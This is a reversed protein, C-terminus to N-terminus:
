RAIWRRRPSCDRSCLKQCTATSTAARFTPATKIALAIAHLNDPAYHHNDWIDDVAGCDSVVYGQFDM